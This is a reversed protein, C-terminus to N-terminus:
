LLILGLGLGLRDMGMISLNFLHFHLANLPSPELKLKARSSPLRGHQHNLQHRDSTLRQDRGGDAAPGVRVRWQM